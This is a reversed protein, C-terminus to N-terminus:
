GGVKLTPMPAGKELWVFALIGVAAILALGLGAELEFFTKVTDTAKDLAKGIASQAADLPNNADLRAKERAKVSNETGPPDISRLTATLSSDVWLTLQTGLPPGTTIILTTGGLAKVDITGETEIPKGDDNLLAFRPAFIADIASIGPTVDIDFTLVAGGQVVIEAMQQADLDVGVTWPNGNGPIHLGGTAGDIALQAKQARSLTSPDLGNAVDDNTVGFISAAVSQAGSFASSADQQIEDFFSPPDLHRRAERLM